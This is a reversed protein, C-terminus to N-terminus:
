YTSWPNTNSNAFKRTAIGNFYELIWEGNENKIFYNSRRDWMGNADWTEKIILKGEVDDRNLIFSYVSKRKKIYSDTLISNEAYINPIYVKKDVYIVGQKEVTLREFFNEAVRDEIRNDFLKVFDKENRIGKPILYLEEGEIPTLGKVFEELPRYTEKLIEEAMSKDFEVKYPIQLTLLGYIFMFVILINKLINLLRM